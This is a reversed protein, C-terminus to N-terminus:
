TMIRDSSLYKIPPLTTINLHRTKPPLVPGNGTPRTKRTTLGTAVTRNRTSGSGSGVRSNPGKALVLGPAISAVLVSTGIIMIDDVYVPILAGKAEGLYWGFFLGLAAISAQLCLDDVIFDFVEEYYERNAQKTGYLVKNLKVLPRTCGYPDPWEGDPLRM